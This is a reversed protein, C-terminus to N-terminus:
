PSLLYAELLRVIDDPYNFFEEDLDEWPDQDGACLEEHIKQRVFRKKPVSAGFISNARLVIKSAHVGNIMKLAEPAFFALDGASNFYYQNFGGNNIEEELEVICVLVRDKESWVAFETEGLRLRAKNAEEYIDM